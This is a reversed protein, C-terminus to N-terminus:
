NLIIVLLASLVFGGFLFSFGFGFRVRFKKLSEEEKMVKGM